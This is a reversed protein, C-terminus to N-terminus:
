AFGKTDSEELEFDELEEFAEFGFDYPDFDDLEDFDDMEDDEDSMADYCEVVANYFEKDCYYEAYDILIDIWDECFYHISYKQNYEAFTQIDEKKVKDMFMPFAVTLYKGCRLAKLKENRIMHFGPRRKLALYLIKDIAISEADFYDELYLRNEIREGGIQPYEKLWKERETADEIADLPSKPKNLCCHKYKKGSGCPCPENRGVKPTAKPRREEGMEREYEAKWKEFDEHREKLEEETQCMAWHQLVDISMPRNCFKADSADYSFMADVYDEYEGYTKYDTLVNNILYKVESLMDIFHCKCIAIALDDYLVSDDEEEKYINQRIFTKFEEADLEGDLYLQGMVDLCASRAFREAEENVIVSKLLELDGNYTNYLVHNLIETIADDLLAQVVDPPLSALAIMRPFSDKDQFEGLFFMAYFYLLNEDDVIGQERIAKDVAERLYPLAEEKHERIIKIEEAPFRGIAYTLSEIARQVESM